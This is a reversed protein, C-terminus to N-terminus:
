AAAMAAAKGRAASAGSAGAANQQHSGASSGAAAAPPNMSHQGNAGATKSHGHFYSCGGLALALASVGLIAVNRM